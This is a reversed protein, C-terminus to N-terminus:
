VPAVSANLTTPNKVRDGAVGAFDTQRNVIEDEGRSAEGHRGGQYSTERPKARPLRREGESDVARWIYM